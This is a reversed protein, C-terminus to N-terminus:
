TAPELGTQREFTLEFFHETFPFQYVRAEFLFAGHLDAVCYYPFINLPQVTPEGVGTLPPELGGLADKHPPPTVPLMALIEPPVPELGFRRTKLMHQHRFLCVCVPVHNATRTRLYAPM